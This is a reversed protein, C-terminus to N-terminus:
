YKGVLNEPTWSRDYDFPIYLNKMKMEAVDGNKYANPRLYNNIIVNDPAYTIIGIFQTKDAQDDYITNFAITNAKMEVHVGAGADVFYQNNNKIVNGIIVNRSEDAPRGKLIFKDLTTGAESPPNYRSHMLMGWAGVYIGELGNEYIKNDSVLLYYGYVIQIGKTNGYIENGRIISHGVVTIWIGYQGNDYCQNDEIVIYKVGDELHIGSAHNNRAINGKILVNNNDWATVYIGHGYPADRDNAPQNGEVICNVIYNRYPIKKRAAMHCPNTYIGAFGRCNMIRLNELRYNYCNALLVGEGIWKNRSADADITLDKIAIDHNGQPTKNENYNATRFVAGDVCEDRKPRNPALRIITKDRAAGRVTINDRLVICNNILYVRAELQVTGGKEGLADVQKQIITEDDFGRPSQM